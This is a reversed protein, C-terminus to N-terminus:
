VKAIQQLWRKVELYTYDDNFDVIDRKILAEIFKVVAKQKNEDGGENMLFLATKDILLEKM